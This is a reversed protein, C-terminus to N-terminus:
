CAKVANTLTLTTRDLRRAGLRLTFTYRGGPFAEDTLGEGRPTLEVTRRGSGTRVLQLTRTRTRHGPARVDFKLAQGARAHTWRVFVRQATFPIAQCLPRSGGRVVRTTTQNVKVLEFGSIRASLAAAAAASIGHGPPTPPLESVVGPIM